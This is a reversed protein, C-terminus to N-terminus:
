DRVREIQDFHSVSGLYDKWSAALADTQYQRYKERDLWFVRTRVRRLDILPLGDIAASGSNFVSGARSNQIMDSVITLEVKEARADIWNLAVIDSLAEYIPSVQQEGGAVASAIAKELPGEFRERYLTQVFLRNSTLMDVKDGSQPKCLDIVPDSLGNYREDLVFISFRDNVSASQLLGSIHTKLFHKQHVSLADSVDIVLLHHTHRPIHENCLTVRDYAKEPSNVVSAVVVALAVLITMGIGFVVIGKKDEASLRGRARKKM